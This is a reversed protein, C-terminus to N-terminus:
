LAWKGRPKAATTVKPGGKDDPAAAAAPTSGGGAPKADKAIEAELWQALERDRGKFENRKVTQQADRYGLKAFHTDILANLERDITVPANDGGGEGTTTTESEDEGDDSNDADFNIGLDDAALVGLNQSRGALHKDELAVATMLEISFPLLKCGRRIATKTMMAEPHERWPGTIPGQGGEKYERSKTMEKARELEPRSMVHFQCEARGDASRVGGYYAIMYAAIVDAVPDEDAKPMEWKGNALNMAFAPIHQLQKNSGYEFKFLDGRRVCHADFATVDKSRRALSMLGRYGPILTCEKRQMKTNKFPVLYASGTINDPELGLAASQMIAGVVTVPACELLGPVRQVTTTAVRIMREATMFKPLAATLQKEMKKFMDRLTSLNSSCLKEKEAQRERWNTRNGGGRRQQQQNSQDSPRPDEAVNVGRSGRLERRVRIRRPGPTM